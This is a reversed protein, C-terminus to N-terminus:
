FTTMISYFHTDQAVHLTYVQHGGEDKSSWGKISYFHTDQAVHLTYVQHGGEDKSSWGKISYFYTDQAVHLTYLQHGGEDKSSRDLKKVCHNSLRGQGPPLWGAWWAHGVLGRWEPMWRHSDCTATSLSNPRSAKSPLPMIFARTAHM